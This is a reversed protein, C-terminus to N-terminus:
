IDYRSCKTVFLGKASITHFIEKKDECLLGDASKRFLNSESLSPSNGSLKDGFTETVSITIIISKLWGNQSTSEVAIVNVM